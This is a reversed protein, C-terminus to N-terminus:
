RIAKPRRGRSVRGACRDPLGAGRVITKLAPPRGGITDADCGARACFPLIPCGPQQEAGCWARSPTLSHLIPFSRRMRGSDADRRGGAARGSCFGHRHSSRRVFRHEAGHLEPGGPIKLGDEREEVQAGMTRLNTAVAAIRDSEKVRLESADRIEIGDETYPAIAALVPIEDILAATDAGAITIGKM